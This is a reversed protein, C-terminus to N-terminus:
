QYILGSIMSFALMLLVYLVVFGPRLVAALAMLPTMRTAPGVLFFALAAGKSMGMQIFSRILPIVGGGCSYFPISVLSAGIVLLWGGSNFIFAIWKDPTMVEVVAGLFIGILFYYGIYELSHWINKLFTRWSFDKIIAQRIGENADNERRLVSPNILIAVPAKYLLIGLILGFVFVAILRAVAMELGLGGLTYFFLQPNMLSSTSLFVVLPALPVGAKFLQLVVPITGFTCLPSVIGLIAAIIIGIVKSKSICNFIIRTWSTFKLVEGSIVGLIVYLWIASFSEGVKAIILNLYNVINSM